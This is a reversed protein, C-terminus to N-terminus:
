KAREGIICLIDDVYMVFFFFLPPPLTIRIKYRIYIDSLCMLVMNSIWGYEYVGVHLVWEM